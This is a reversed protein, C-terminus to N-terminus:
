PDVFLDQTNVRLADNKKLKSFFSGELIDVLGDIIWNQKVKTKGEYDDMSKQLLMVDSFTHDYRLKPCM